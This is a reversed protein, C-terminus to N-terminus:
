NNKLNKIDEEISNEIDKAYKHYITCPKNYTRANLFIKRLDKVFNEKIKYMGSDLNSQLTQIDMPEKIIESYDPAETVEVPKLFPWSNRNNRIKDLLKKCQTYFNDNNIDNKLFSEYDKYDWGSEEIGPLKKFISESLM